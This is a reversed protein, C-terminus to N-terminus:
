KNTSDKVCRVSLGYTKGMGSLNANVFNNDMFLAWGNPESLESSTWWCGWEGVRSIQSDLLGGALASFGSSNQKASYDTNGVAGTTADANWGSASALSKAIKNDSTSSDYNYGNAILYNELVTWDSFTPVHWGEPCINRSDTVENWWYLRGYKAVYCQDDASSSEIRDGNRYHTARLNEAMWTQLGITITRYENGDVDSVTGYTLTENFESNESLTKFSVEDGYGIGAGNIAYARVYYLTNSKLGSICSIFTSDDMEASICNTATTPAPETGWCIGQESIYSGGASEIVGGCCASTDSIYKVPSTFLVPSVIAKGEEKKCGNTCLLSIGIFLLVIIWSINKKRMTVNNFESFLIRVQVEGMGQHSIIM